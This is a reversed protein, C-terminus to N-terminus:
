PEGLADAVFAEINARSYQGQAYRRLDSYDIHNRISRLVVRAVTEPDINDSYRLIITIAKTISTEKTM